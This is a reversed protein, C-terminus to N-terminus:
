CVWLFVFMWDCVIVCFVCGVFLCLCAFVCVCVWWASVCVDVFEGGWLGVIGCDCLGLCVFVTVCVFSIQPLRFLRYGMSGGGGESRRASGKVSRKGAVYGWSKTKGPVGGRGGIGGLLVTGAVVPRWCQQFQHIPALKKGFWFSMFFCMREFGWLIKFFDHAGLPVIKIITQFWKPM